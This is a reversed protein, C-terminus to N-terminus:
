VCWLYPGFAGVEEQKKAQQIILGGSSEKNQKCKDCEQTHTTGLCSRSGM